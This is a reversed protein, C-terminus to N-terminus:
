HPKGEPPSMDYLRIPDTEGTPLVIMVLLYELKDDTVLKTRVDVPVTLNRMVIKALPILERGLEAFPVKRVVSLYEVCIQLATRAGQRYMLLEDASIEEM